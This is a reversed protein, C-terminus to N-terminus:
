QFLGLPDNGGGLSLQGNNMGTNKNMSQAFPQPAATGPTNMQPAPAQGQQPPQGQPFQQQPQQQGQQSNLKELISKLQGNQVMNSITGQLAPSLGSVLADLGAARPNRANVQSQLLGESIGISGAPNWDPM